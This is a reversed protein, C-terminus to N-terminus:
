RLGETRGRSRRRWRCNARRSRITLRLWCRRNAWSWSPISAEAQNAPHDSQARGAVPPGDNPGINSLDLSGQMAVKSGVAQLLCDINVGVDLYTFQTSVISGNTEPQLSGSVTPSKTGVKFVTKRSDMALMTYRRDTMAGADNGDRFNIEVKYITGAEKSNQAHLPLLAALAVAALLLKRARMKQKEEIM